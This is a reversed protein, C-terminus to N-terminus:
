VCVASSPSTLCVEQRLISAFFTRRMQRAQREGSIAFLCISGGAMLWTLGGVIAMWMAMTAVMSSDGAISFPQASQPHCLTAFPQFIDCSQQHIDTPYSHHTSLPVVRPIIQPNKKPLALILPPFNPLGKSNSGLPHSSNNGPPRRDM